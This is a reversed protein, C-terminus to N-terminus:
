EGSPILRNLNFVQKKRVLRVKRILWAAGLGDLVVDGEGCRFSYWSLDVQHWDM